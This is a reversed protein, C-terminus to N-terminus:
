EGDGDPDTEVTWRGEGDEWPFCNEDVPCYDFCRWSKGYEDSRVSIMKREGCFERFKIWPLHEGAYRMPIAQQQWRLELWLHDREWELSEELTLVREEQGFAINVSDIM